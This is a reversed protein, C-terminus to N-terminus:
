KLLESVANAIEEAPADYAFHKTYVGNKDMLYIFSSHDVEYNKDASDKKNVSFYTKYASAAQKLQEDTGTLGIIRTDFNSVYKKLVEPTDRTPDVSIFIPAIQSANAGLIGLIKAFSATTTPCVDGCNTFGFFVLMVKGKFDADSVAIGDQNTLSFTGGIQATETPTTETTETQATAPIAERLEEGIKNKTFYLVASTTMLLVVILISLFKIM